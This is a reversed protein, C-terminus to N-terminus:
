FTHNLMWRPTTWTNLNVTTDNGDNPTIQTLFYVRLHYLFWPTASRGFERRFKTQGIRRARYKHPTIHVIMTQLRVFTLKTTASPRAGIQRWPIQLWWSPLPQVDRRLLAGVYHDFHGNCLVVIKIGQWSQWIESVWGILHNETVQRSHYPVLITVGTISALCCM